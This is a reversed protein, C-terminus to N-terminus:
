ICLLPSTLSIFLLSAPVLLKRLITISLLENFLFFINFVFISKIIEFFLKVEDEVSSEDAPVFGRSEAESSMFDVIREIPGEVSEM